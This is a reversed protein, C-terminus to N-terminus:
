YISNEKLEFKTNVEMRLFKHFVLVNLIKWFKKTCKVTFEEYKQRKRFLLNYVM